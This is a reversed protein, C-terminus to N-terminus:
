NWLVAFVFRYVSTQLKRIYSVASALPENVHYLKKTFAVASFFPNHSYWHSQEYPTVTICKHTLHWVHIPEVGMRHSQSTHNWYTDICIATVGQSCVAKVQLFFNDFFVMAFLFLDYRTFSGEFTWDLGKRKLLVLQDSFFLCSIFSNCFACSVTKVRIIIPSTVNPVQCEGDVM